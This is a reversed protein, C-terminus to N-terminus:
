PDFFANCTDDINVHTPLGSLRNSSPPVDALFDAVFNHAFSVWEFASVQALDQEKTVDFVVSDGSQKGVLPTGADNIVRCFPGVLHTNLTPHGAVNFVGKADTVIAQGNVVAATYFNLGGTEPPNLPSKDKGFFNGTVSRQQTTPGAPA